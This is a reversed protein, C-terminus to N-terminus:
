FFKGSLGSSTKNKVTEKESPDIYDDDDKDIKPENQPESVDMEEVVMM